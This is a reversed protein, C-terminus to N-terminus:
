DGRRPRTTTPMSRGLALTGRARRNMRVLFGGIGVAALLSSVANLVLITFMTRIRKRPAGLTAGPTFLLCLPVECIWLLSGRPDNRLGSHGERGGTPRARRFAARRARDDTRLQEDHRGASRASLWASGQDGRREQRAELADHQRQRPRAGHRRRSRRRDDRERQRARQPRRGQHRGSCHPRPAATAEASAAAAQSAARKTPKSTAASRPTSARRTRAPTSPPSSAATKARRTATSAGNTTRSSASDHSTLATLAHRLKQADALLEDLRTQIDRRLQDLM